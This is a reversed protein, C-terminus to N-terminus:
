QMRDILSKAKDKGGLGFAIGLALGAGGLVATVAVVVVREGVGLLDLAMSAGVFFIAYKAVNALLKSYGAGSSAKGVLDGVYNGISLAALLIVISAVLGPLYRVLGDVLGSLQVFGLSDLAQQATLLLIVAMVITGLISSLTARGPAPKLFALGIKEPFADFGIGGLFTEVLGRVFKAVAYGIGLIVAAVLIKPVAALISELTAKVPDSIATIQLSDVASVIIPLLIFFYAVLGVVGSLKREGCIKDFGLREAGTDAGVASLFNTVVERVITAVINGIFFIIAAAIINPLFALTKSLMDQLPAVLAEQGLAELFPPIGFLLIVYFFLRGIQQSPGLKEGKVEREPFYKSAREDFSAAGLMKGLGLKVFTAVVWYALLIAFAKLLNPVIGVIRDAVNQLPDAVMSLNLANFFAVFGFLIIIWKVLNGVLVEMSRKKGQPGTVMAELGLQQVLRNDFQVLGLLKTVGTGVLKGIIWFALLLILAKIVTPLAGATKQLSPLMADQWLDRGQQVVQSGGSKLSGGVETAAEGIGKAVDIGTDVTASVAEGGAEVAAAVAGQGQEEASKSDEVQAITTASVALIAVVCGWSLIMRNNRYQM